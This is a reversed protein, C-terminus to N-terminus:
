GPSIFLQSGLIMGQLERAEKEKAELAAALMVTSRTKSWLRSRGTGASNGDPMASEPGDAQTGATGAAGASSRVAQAIALLNLRSRPRSQSAQAQRQTEQLAREAAEFEREKAELRM